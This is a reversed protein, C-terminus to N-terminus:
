SVCAVTGNASWRRDWFFKKGLAIKEPTLPNDDPIYAAQEQLGLALTVKNGGGQSVSSPIFTSILISLLVSMPRARSIVDGERSCGGPSRTSVMVSCAM